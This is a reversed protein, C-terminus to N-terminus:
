CPDGTLYAQVAWAGTPQKAVEARIKQRAEPLDAGSTVKGGKTFTAKRSDTCLDVVVLRGDGVVDKYTITERGGTTWGSKNNTDVVEKVQALAAGTALTRLQPDVKGETRSRWFAVDFKSLTDLADVQAATITPMAGFTIGLAPDSRDTVAPAATTASAQPTPEASASASATAHAPTASETSRQLSVADGQQASCGAVVLVGGAVLGALTRRM